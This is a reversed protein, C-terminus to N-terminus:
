EVRCIRVSYSSRSNLRPTGSLHLEVAGLPKKPAVALQTELETPSLDASVPNTEIAWSPTAGIAHGASVIRYRDGVPIIFGSAIGVPWQNPEARVLNITIKLMLEVFGQMAQMEDM